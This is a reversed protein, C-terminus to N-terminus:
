KLKCSLKFSTKYDKKGYPNKPYILVKTENEDCDKLITYNMYGKQDYYVKLSDYSIKLGIKEYQKLYNIAEEKSGKSDVLLDYYYDEYFSKTMKNLKREIKQEVTGGYFYNYVLYGLALIFIILLFIAIVKGVKKAKM